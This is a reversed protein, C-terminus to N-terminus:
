LQLAFIPKTKFLSGELPRSILPVFKIGISKELAIAGPAVLKVNWIPLVAPPSLQRDESGDFWDNRQRVGTRSELQNSGLRAKLWAVREAGGWIETRYAADLRKGLAPLKSLLVM